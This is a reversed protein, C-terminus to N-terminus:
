SGFKKAKLINFFIQGIVSILGGIVFAWFVNRIVPPRPKVEKVMQGYQKKQMEAPLSDINQTV